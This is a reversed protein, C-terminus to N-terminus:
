NGFKTLIILATLIGMIMGLFVELPTHGLLEALKQQSLHHEKFIEAVIQNLLKAQQGAARRVSQADFMVVIAFALTVAFLPDSFGVRFGVATALAAAMASHASPVGGTSVLYHFDIKRTRIFDTLMKTCQAVMWAALACWIVINSYWSFDQTM